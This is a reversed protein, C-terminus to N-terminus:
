VDRRKANYEGKKRIPGPGSEHKLRALTGEMAASKDILFRNENAFREGMIQMAEIEGSTKQLLVKLESFIVNFRTAEDSEGAAEIIGYVQIYGLYLMQRELRELHKLVTTMGALLGNQINQCRAAYECVLAILDSVNERVQDMKEEREKCLVEEIFYLITEIQLSIASVTFILENLGVSLDDILVRVGGILEDNEKANIRIDRALVGFTEGGGCSRHSSVSANLSLFVVDRALRRLLDGKEKFGSRVEEFLGIKAYWEEYERMVSQCTDYLMKLGLLSQSSSEFRKEALCGNGLSAKRAHLEQLLAESMFQEYREYGLEGLLRGLLAGSEEMGGRSEAMLLKFYIERARAFLATTPKIRISLYREGLPFVAALVWYYEGTKTRNKVYAVLPKGSGIADWLTKFIVRPMDPHRIINHISGVLETEDYGSIRVFVDNGSLITSDLQTISFFLEDNDFKAEQASLDTKM